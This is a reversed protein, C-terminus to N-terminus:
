RQTKLNDNRLLKFGNTSTEEFGFIQVKKNVM